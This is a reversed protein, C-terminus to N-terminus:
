EPYLQNIRHLLEEILQIKFQLNAFVAIRTANIKSHAEIGLIRCWFTLAKGFTMIQSSVHEEIESIVSRDPLPGLCQIGCILTRISTVGPDSSSLLSSVKHMCESYLIMAEALSNLEDFSQQDSLDLANTVRVTLSELIKLEDRLEVLHELVTGPNTMILAREETSTM